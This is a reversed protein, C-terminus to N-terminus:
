GPSSATAGSGCHCASNVKVAPRTGRDHCDEIDGLEEIEAANGRQIVALTKPVERIQGPPPPFTMLIM